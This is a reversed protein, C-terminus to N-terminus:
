REYAVQTATESQVTEPSCILHRHEKINEEMELDMTDTPVIDHPKAIQFYRVPKCAEQAILIESLVGNSIPGFVWIEDVRLVLSNNAKRITDMEISDLLFYDFLLFPNLPVKDQQLVFRSIYMRHYFLHKSMATYVLDANGKIDLAAHNFKRQTM